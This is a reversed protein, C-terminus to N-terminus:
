VAQIVPLLAIHLALHELFGDKVAISIESVTSQLNIPVIEESDVFKKDRFFHQWKGRPNPDAHCRYRISYLISCCDCVYITIECQNRMIFILM